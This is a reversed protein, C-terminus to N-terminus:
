VCNVAGIGQIRRGFGQIWVNACGKQNWKGHPFSKVERGPHPLLGLIAQKVRNGKRKHFEHRNHMQKSTYQVVM